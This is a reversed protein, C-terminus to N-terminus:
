LNALLLSNKAWTQIKRHIYLKWEVMSLGKRYRNPQSFCWAFTFDRATKREVVNWLYVFLSNRTIKVLIRKQSARTNEHLRKISHFCRKKWKLRSSWHLFRMAFPSLHNELYFNLRTKWKEKENRERSNIPYINRIRVYRLFAKRTELSFARKWRKQKRLLIQNFNKERPSSSLRKLGAAIAYVHERVSIFYKNVKRIRRWLM